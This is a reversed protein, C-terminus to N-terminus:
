LDGGGLRVAHGLHNSHVAGGCGVPHADPEGGHHVDRLAATLLLSLLYIAPIVNVSPEPRWSLMKPLDWAGIRMNRSFRPSANSCCLISLSSNLISLELLHASFIPM